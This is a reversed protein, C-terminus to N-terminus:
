GLELAKGRARSKAPPKAAQRSEPPAHEPPPERQQAQQELSREPSRSWKGDFVRVAARDADRAAFRIQDKEGTKGNTEGLVQAIHEQQAELREPRTPIAYKDSILRTALEVRLEIKVFKTRDSDSQSWGGATDLMLAKAALGRAMVQAKVLAHTKDEPSLYIAGKGRASVHSPTGPAADQVEIGSKAFAENLEQFAPERPATDLEPIPTKSWKGEVVQEMNFMQVAGVTSKEAVVKEVIRQGDEDFVENGQEDRAYQSREAGKPSYFEVNAGKEGTKFLWGREQMQSRSIWRPDQYGKEEAVSALQIGNAGRLADHTTTKAFPTYPLRQGLSPDLKKNWPAIGKAAQEALREALEARTRQVAESIEPLIKPSSATANDERNMFAM